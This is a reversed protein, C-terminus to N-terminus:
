VQNHIHKKPSVPIDPNGELPVVSPQLYGLPQQGYSGNNYGDNYGYPQQQGNYPGYNSQGSYYNSGIGRTWATVGLIAGFAVHIMGGSSLTIPHWEVYPVKFIEAFAANAIPFIIFDCACITMYLWAMAPRWTTSFRTEHHTSRKITM